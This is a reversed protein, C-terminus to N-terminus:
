PIIVTVRGFGTAFQGFKQGLFFRKNLLHGALVSQSM